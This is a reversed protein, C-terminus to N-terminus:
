LSNLAQDFHERADDAKGAHYSALGAQYEKEARAVLGSVVDPEADELPGVSAANQTVKAPVDNSPKAVQAQAEAATPKSAPAVAPAPHLAPASGPPLLSVPKQATQCASAALLLAAALPIGPNSLKM